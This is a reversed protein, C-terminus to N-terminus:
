VSRGPKLGFAAFIAVVVFVMTFALWAADAPSSTVELHVPADPDATSYTLFIPTETIDIVPDLVPKVDGSTIDHAEAPQDLAGLDLAVRAHAGPRLGPEFWMVLASEGNDRRYLATRLQRAALGGSLSVLDTRITSHSCNNSFLSFAHAAPKWAGDSNTLGFFGESDMANDRLSSSSSDRYCYWILNEIGVSTAITYAKTAHVALHNRSGRWPYVGGDPGGLETVWVSGPHGHKAAANLVRLYHGYYGRPESIYCHMTPHDVMELAGRAHFGEIVGPVHVGLPSTAAPGLLVAGPHVERATEAARAVLTYLEDLPGDGFRPMDPENWLEWAHVRDKYRSVTRRVYELYKPLDEPALYHARSAGSANSEVANNDFVLLAVVKVGHKEAADLYADYRTFDWTDPGPQVRHWHFDVRMMRVGLKHLNAYEEDSGSYGAHCVGAPEGVRIRETRQISVPPWMAGAVLGAVAVLVVLWVEAYTLPVAWPATTSAPLHEVPEYDRQRARSRAFATFALWVFYLILALVRMQGALGKTFDLGIGTVVIVGALMFALLGLVWMTTAAVVSLAYAAPGERHSAFLLVPLGYGVVLAIPWAATETTLVFTGAVLAHALFGARWRNALLALAIGALFAPEAAPGVFEAYKLEARGVLNASFPTRLLAALMLSVMFLSEALAAVSTIPKGPMLSSATNRRSHPAMCAHFILSASWFYPAWDMESALMTFLAWAAVVIILGMPWAARTDQALLARVREHLALNALIAFAICASWFCLPWTLPLGPSFPDRVTVYVLLAFMGGAATIHFLWEARLIAARVSRTLSCTMGGVILLLLPIAAVLASESNEAVFPTSRYLVWFAHMPILVFTEGWAFARVTSLAPALKGSVRNPNKM